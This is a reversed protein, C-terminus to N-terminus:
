LFPIISNLCLIIYYNIKLTLKSPNLIVKSIFRQAHTTLKWLPKISLLLDVRFPFSMMEQASIWVYDSPSFHPLCEKQHDPNMEEQGKITSIIHCVSARYGHQWIDRMVLGHTLIIEDGTNRM